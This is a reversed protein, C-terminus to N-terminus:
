SHLCKNCIFILKGSSTVPLYEGDEVCKECFIDGCRPCNLKRSLSDLQNGCKCIGRSSKWDLKMSNLDKEIQENLLNTSQALPDISLKSILQTLPDEINETSDSNSLDNKDEKKSDILGRLMIIRKELLKSYDNLASTQQNKMLLADYINENSNLNLEFRNYLAKWYKLMQPRTDPRLVQNSYISNPKYLPNIYDNIKYQIYDWLSFTTEALKLDLREKECNGIFTGFQCSYVHELLLTLFRENFEFACPFQQALQWVSELFQHFIPSIENLSKENEYIHGNRHTFKHGFMLWEKEILIQFGHISRYYPDLLLSSLACTQATRDWGDSCHVVVNVNQDNVAESIFISTDIVTKIHKLWESKELTNLFQINSQNIIESAELLKQLSNRMVHINEIGLFQFQINTYNTENEYGKGAAKNAMANIKPRTDVVYTFNANKNTKTIHDFLEEDELSRANLGTLPQSCRCISAGNNHLYSLVPLRGRSRFNASGRIVQDSASTPTHLIRPYTDCIEYNANVKTSNWEHNPVGMRAYESELQFIVENESLSLTKLFNLHENPKFCLLDQIKSPRTYQVLSLNLTQCDREKSVIFLCSLFHKCKILIPSGSTNLPQKDISSILSYYIWIQHKNQAKDVFVLHDSTLYLVGNTKLKLNSNDVLQVNDIKLSKQEDLIFKM